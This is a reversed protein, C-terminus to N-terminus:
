DASHNNNGSNRLSPLIDGHSMDHLAIFSFRQRLGNQQYEGAECVFRAVAVGEDFIDLVEAAATHSQAGAREVPRNSPEDFVSEDLREILIIRRSVLLRVSERTFAAFM